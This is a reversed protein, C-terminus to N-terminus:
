QKQEKILFQEKSNTLLNKSIYAIASTLATTAITKWDFVLSGTQLSTYVITLVSTLVAIVLGKLFDTTNLSLFTSKM